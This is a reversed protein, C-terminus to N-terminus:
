KGFWRYFLEWRKRWWFEVCRFSFNFVETAKVNQWWFWRDPKREPHLDEFTGAIQITAPGWPHDWLYDLRSKYMRYRNRFIQKGGIWPAANVTMQQRDRAYKEVAEITHISAPEPLGVATTDGPYMFEIDPVLEYIVEPLNGKNNLPFNDGCCFYAFSAYGVIRRPDLIDIQDQMQQIKDLAPQDDTVHGAISFQTFLMDIDGIEKKIRKLHGKTPVCDNMLLVNRVSFKERDFERVVLFSDMTGVSGCYIQATRLEADNAILHTWENIPLELVPFGLCSVSSLVRMSAHKQYLITPRNRWTAALERLSPYNLHDPHEHSIWIYDPRDVVEAPKSLLAWSDDFAKGKIWPDTLIRKGAVDIELAAHGIFRINM